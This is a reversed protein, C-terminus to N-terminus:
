LAHVSLPFTSPRSLIQKQQRNQKAKHKIFGGIKSGREGVKSGREGMKSGREGVKSGREDMKSGREDM